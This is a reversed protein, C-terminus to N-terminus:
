GFVIGSSRMRTMYSALRLGNLWFLNLLFGKISEAKELSPAEALGAKGWLFSM